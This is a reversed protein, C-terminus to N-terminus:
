LSATFMVFKSFIECNEDILLSVIVFIWIFDHDIENREVVVQDFWNGSAAHEYFWNGMSPRIKVRVKFIAGLMYRQRIM